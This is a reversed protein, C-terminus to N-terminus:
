LLLRCALYERSQLESMHEESRPYWKPRGIPASWNGRASAASPAPARSPAVGPAGAVAGPAGPQGGRTADAPRTLQSPTSPGAPPGVVGDPTSPRSPRGGSRGRRPWRGDRGRHGLGHSGGEGDEGWASLSRRGSPLPATATRWRGGSAAFGGGYCPNRATPSPLNSSGVEQGGTLRALWVAGCGPSPDSYGLPGSPCFRCRAWRDTPSGPRWAVLIAASVGCRPGLLRSLAG